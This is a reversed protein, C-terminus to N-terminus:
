VDPEEIDIMTDELDEYTPEDDDDDDDFLDFEHLDHLRPSELPNVEMDVDVDADKQSRMLWVDQAQRQYHSIVLLKTRLSEQKCDNCHSRGVNLWFNKGMELGKSAWDCTAM